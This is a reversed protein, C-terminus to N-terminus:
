LRLFVFSDQVGPDRAATRQTPYDTHSLSSPRSGGHLIGLARPSGYEARGPILCRCDSGRAVPQTGLLYGFGPQELSIPHFGPFVRRRGSRSSSRSDM